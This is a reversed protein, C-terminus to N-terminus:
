WYCGTALKWTVRLSKAVMRSAPLPLLNRSSPVARRCAESHERLSVERLKRTKQEPYTRIRSLTQRVHHPRCRSAFKAFLDSDMACDISEDLGGSQRYLSSRWFTSPQPIYNHDNRWIYWNFPIEKKARLVRGAADIWLADGYLFQVASHDRFYDLVFRVADPELLDDSCLWAHIDGTARAFGKILAHTQGRDPESVWYSLLSEYERIVEVSGDSSGGDIVLVELEGSQLGRQDALSRLTAGLHRAQRYSPVVM